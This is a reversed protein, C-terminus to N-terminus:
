PFSIFSIRMAQHVRLTVSRDVEAGRVWVGVECRGQCAFLLAKEGWRPGVFATPGIIELAIEREMAKQTEGIENSM